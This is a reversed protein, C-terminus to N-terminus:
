EPVVATVYVFHSRELTLALTGGAAAFSSRGSLEPFDAHLGGLTVQGSPSVDCETAKGGGGGSERSLRCLMLGFCDAHLTFSSKGDFAFIQDGVKEVLPPELFQGEFGIFGGCKGILKLSTTGAAPQAAPFYWPDSLNQRLETISIAAKEPVIGLVQYRLRETLLDWARLASARYQPLGCRWAAGQGALLFEEVSGCAGALQQMERLWPTALGPHAQALKLVANCLSGALRRPDAALLVAAAPLIEDWVLQM